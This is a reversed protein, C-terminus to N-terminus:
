QANKSSKKKKKQLFLDSDKDLFDQTFKMESKKKNQKPKRAKAIFTDIRKNEQYNQDIRQKQNKLSM